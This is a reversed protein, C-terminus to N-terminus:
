SLISQGVFRTQWFSYRHNLWGLTKIWGLNTLNASLFEVRVLQVVINRVERAFAVESAFENRLDDGTVSGGRKIAVNDRLLRPHVM